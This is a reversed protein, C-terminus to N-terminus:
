SKCTGSSSAVSTLRGAWPLGPLDTAGPGPGTSSRWALARAPVKSGAPPAGWSRYSWFSEESQVRQGGTEWRQSSDWPSPVIDPVFLNWSSSLKLHLRVHETGAFPSPLGEAVQPSLPKPKVLVVKTGDCFKTRKRSGFVPWLFHQRIVKQLAQAILHLSQETWPPPLTPFFSM